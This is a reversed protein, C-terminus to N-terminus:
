SDLVLLDQQITCLFSSVEASFPFCSRTETLMCRYLAQINKEFLQLAYTSGSDDRHM